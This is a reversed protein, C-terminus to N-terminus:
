FAEKYPLAQVGDFKSFTETPSDAAHAQSARLGVTGAFRTVIEHKLPFFSSSVFHVPFWFKVPYMVM